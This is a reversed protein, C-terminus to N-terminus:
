KERSEVTPSECEVVLHEIATLKEDFVVTIHSQEEYGPLVIPCKKVDGSAIVSQVV